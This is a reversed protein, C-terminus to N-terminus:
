GIEPTFSLSLTHSIPVTFLFFSTPVKIHIYFKLLNELFIFKVKFLIVDSFKFAFSHFSVFIADQIIYDLGLVVFM